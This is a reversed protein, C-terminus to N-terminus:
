SSRRVQDVLSYRDAAPFQKTMEFVQMAADFAAQYVNLERFYSIKTGM